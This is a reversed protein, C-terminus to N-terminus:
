RFAAKLLQILALLLALLVVCGALALPVFPGLAFIPRSWAWLAPWQVLLAVTALCLFPGYPIETERQLVLVLVGVVLGALPALFFILLCSQWGLFAGIMAMLTVDGFGMAERGLVATGVNRVVWVIAGGGALGVLATLLGLWPMAGLYWVGAIVASGLVGLAALWASAPDRVLRAFSLALARGLGHRRYWTRPMLAVCWLWWCALALVLSWPRPFGDLGNPWPAPATLTLPQVIPQAGLRNLGAPLLSLPWWAAAVLGMLAGPLTVSDPITKEDVDILAALLLLCLLVVHAAYQAHLVPGLAAVLGPARPAPLLAGQGVEWAYLWPLALAVGLEVAMPRIWFARGHLDAERRLAIWGFVPVRDTWRRAPARPDTPGWPSIARRNWALRYVGLNILSGLVAGLVGLVVLRVEWPAALIVPM